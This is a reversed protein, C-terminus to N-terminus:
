RNTSDSLQMLNLARTRWQYYSQIKHFEGETASIAAYLLQKGAADYPISKVFHEIASDLRVPLSLPDPTIISFCFREVKPSDWSLTTYIGFAEKGLRLLQESPEPLELDRLMSRIAAPELLEAPLKGFYVNATRHRYDIGVLSVRDDLGYRSFFDAHEALSQPMSALGALGSLAQLDGPPFISWAKKFGGVIGFDVGHSDIPFRADIEALLSGAPHDTAPILGNSLARTYPDLDPPLMMFHCNFEGANRAGSAVRFAIMADAAADGYTTLIPWVQDRSCPVNFLRACKEIASYLDALVATEPM